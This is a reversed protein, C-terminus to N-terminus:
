RGWQQFGGTPYGWNGFQNGFNFQPATTIAGETTAPAQMQMGWNGGFNGGFGTNFGGMNYGGVGLGMGYGGYGGYNGGYREICNPDFTEFDEGEDEADYVAPTPSSTTSVCYREVDKGDWEYHMAVWFEDNVAPSYEPTAGGLTLLKDCDDLDEM